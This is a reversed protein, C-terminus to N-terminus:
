SVSRSSVRITKETKAKRMGEASLELFVSLRPCYLTNRNMQFYRGSLDEEVELCPGSDAQHQAVARVVRVTLELPVAADTV